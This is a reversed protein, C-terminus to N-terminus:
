VTLVHMEPKIFDQYSQVSWYNNLGTPSIYVRIVSRAISIREDDGRSYMFDDTVIEIRKVESQPKGVYVATVGGSVSEGVEGM